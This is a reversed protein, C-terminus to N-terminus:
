GIIFYIQVMLSMLKWSDLGLTDISGDHVYGSSAYLGKVYPSVGKPWRVSRTHWATQLFPFENLCVDLKAINRSYKQFDLTAVRMMITLVLAIVKEVIGKLWVHLYDTRISKYFGNSLRYIRSWRFLKILSNAGPAYNANQYEIKLRQEIKTLKNTGKKGIMLAHERFLWKELDVGKKNSEIDKRWILKIGTAPINNCSCNLCKCSSCKYKSKQYSVGTIQNKAPEDLLFSCPFIWVRKTIQNEGRGIMCVIGTLEFKLLSAFCEFIFDRTMQRKVYQIIRVKFKHSLRSDLVDDYIVKDSYQFGIPMYGILHYKIPANTNQIAMRLPCAGKQMGSDVTTGDYYICFFIVGSDDGHMNKLAESSRPFLKGSLFNTYIVENNKNDLVSQMSESSFSTVLDSSDTDLLIQSFKRLIDFYVGKAIPGKGIARYKKAKGQLSIFQTPFKYTSEYLPVISKLDKEFCDKIAEFKPLQFAAGVHSIAIRQFFSDILDNACKESMSHKMALNYVEYCDSLIIKDGNKKNFTNHNHLDQHEIM